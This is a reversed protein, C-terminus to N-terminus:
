FKKKIKVQFWFHQAVIAKIDLRNGEESFIDIFEENKELCVLCIALNM